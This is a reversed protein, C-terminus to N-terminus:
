SMLDSTWLFINSTVIDKGSNFGPSAGSATGFLGSGPPQATPQGFISGTGGQQSLAGFGGSGQQAVGGFTPSQAANQSLSSFSATSGEAFSYCLHFFGLM